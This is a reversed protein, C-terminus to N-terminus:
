FIPEHSRSLEKFRDFDYIYDAEDYDNSVLSLCVTGSSFNDLTRWIGPPIFLGQFPRNLTFTRWSYGDCLNVNLSGSLAVLLQSMDLHSHGGRESGAPVDYIWYARRIAFPIHENNQVVTLNGRPDHIRPLNIIRPTEPKMYGLTLCKERFSLNPIRVLRSAAPHWPTLSLIFVLLTDHRQIM